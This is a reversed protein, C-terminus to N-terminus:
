KMWDMSSFCLVFFIIVIFHIAVVVAAAFFLFFFIFTIQYVVAVVVSVVVAIYTPFSFSVPFFQRNNKSQERGVQLSIKTENASFTAADNRGSDNRKQVSARERESMEDSRREFDSSFYQIRTSMFNKEIFNKRRAFDFACFQSNGQSLSLYVRCEHDRVENVLLKTCISCYQHTAKANLIIKMNFLAHSSPSKYARLNACMRLDFPQKENSACVISIPSLRSLWSCCGIQVVVVVVALLFSFYFYFAISLALKHM